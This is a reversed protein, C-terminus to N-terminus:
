TGVPEFQFGIKEMPWVVYCHWKADLRQLIHAMLRQSRGELYWKGDMKNLLICFHAFLILAGPHWDNLLYMYEVDQRMPWFKLMDWVNLNEGLRDACAFAYGLEIAAKEYIRYEEDSWCEDSDKPPIMTILHEVFPTRVGEEVDIPTEWTCVLPKLPGEEVQQWVSDALGCGARLFFLWNSLMNTGNPDVLLLREDEKENAFSCTALLHGFAFIAYCNEENVDAVAARFLPMASDQHSAATILLTRKQLANHYAMHLASCALIGHKLFPFDQALSPITTKWMAETEADTSLTLSTSTIFHQLLVADVDEIVSDKCAEEVRPFVNACAIYNQSKRTATSGGPHILPWKTFYRLSNGRFFTQLPVSRWDQHPEGARGHAAAWHSKMRKVSVCLHSCGEHKCMLGDQVPLLPIPFEHPRDTSQIVNQPDDLDLKSVYQMFPRRHNRIIHHIDKLHRSIAGPQVAYQCSSCVVVKYNPLYRLLEAPSLDQPQMNRTSLM